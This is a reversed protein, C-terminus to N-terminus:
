NKFNKRILAILFLPEWPRFDAIKEKKEEYMGARTRNSARPKREGVIPKKQKLEMTLKKKYAKANLPEM